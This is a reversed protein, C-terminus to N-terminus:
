KHDKILAFKKKRPMKKIQLERKLADSRSAVSEAYVLEVPRRSRTYKAGGIDSNHAAVRRELDKTIGTYLTRDKCRIIYIYWSTLCM